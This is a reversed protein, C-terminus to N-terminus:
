PLNYAGTPTEGPIIAIIEPCLTFRWATPLVFWAVEEGNSWQIPILYEILIIIIVVPRMGTHGAISPAARAIAIVIVVAVTLLVGLPTLFFRSLAPFLPYFPSLFPSQLCCPSLSPSPSPFRHLSLYQKVCGLLLHYREQRQKATASPFTLPLSPCPPSVLAPIILRPLM